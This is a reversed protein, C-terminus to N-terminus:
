RLTDYVAHIYNAFRGYGQESSSCSCFSCSSFLYSFLFYSLPSPQSTARHLLSITHHNRIYSDVVGKIGIVGRKVLYIYFLSLNLRLFIVLQRHFCQIFLKINGLYLLYGILNKRVSEMTVSSSHPFVKNFGSCLYHGLYPSIREVDSM